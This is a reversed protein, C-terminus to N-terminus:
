IVGSEWMKQLAVDYKGGTVISAGTGVGVRILFFNLRGPMVCVIEEKTGQLCIKQNWALCSCTMHRYVVANYLM